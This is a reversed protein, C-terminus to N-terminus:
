ECCSSYMWKVCNQSMHLLISGKGTICKSRIKTMMDAIEFKFTLDYCITVTTTWATNSSHKHSQKLLHSMPFINEAWNFTKSCPRSCIFIFYLNLNNMHLFQGKGAINKVFINLLSVIFQFNTNQKVIVM